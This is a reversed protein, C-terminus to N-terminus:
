LVCHSRETASVIKVGETRVHSFICEVMKINVSLCLYYRHISGTRFCTANLGRLFSTTYSDCTLKEDNRTKYYATYPTSSLVRLVVSPFQNSKSDVTILPLVTVDMYVGLGERLGVGRVEGGM